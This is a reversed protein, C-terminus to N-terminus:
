GRPQRRCLSPRLAGPPSTGRRPLQGVLTAVQVPTDGENVINGNEPLLVVGGVHYDRILEAIVTDGTVEAGPFAVLFLQGVKAARSMREMLRAVEDEEQARASRPWALPNLMTVVLTLAALRKLREFM